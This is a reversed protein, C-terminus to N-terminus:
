EGGVMKLFGRVNSYEPKEPVIFRDRYSEPVYYGGGGAICVPVKGLLHSLNPDQEVIGIIRKIFQVKLPEVPVIESLSVEKGEVTVKGNRLIKEAEELPTFIGTQSEVAKGVADAITMVGQNKIGRSYIVEPVEGERELYLLDITKFGVDVILVKEPAGIDYYIGKGQPLVVVEQNYERGNVKFNRLVKELLEDKKGELVSGNPLVVKVPKQYENVAISVAVVEPRVEDLGEGARKAAERFAKALFLPGLVISSDETKGEVVYHPFKLAEEGVLYEEGNWEFTEYRKTLAGTPPKVAVVSPFSFLGQPTAVKVSSYGLDAALIPVGATM